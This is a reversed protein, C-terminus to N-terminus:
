GHGPEAMFLALVGFSDRGIENSSSARRISVIGTLVRSSIVCFFGFFRALFYARAEPNGAQRDLEVGFKPKEGM